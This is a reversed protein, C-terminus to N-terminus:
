SEQDRDELEERYSEHDDSDPDEVRDMVEKRSQASVHLTETFDEREEQAAPDVADDKWDLDDQPTRPQYDDPADFEEPEAM